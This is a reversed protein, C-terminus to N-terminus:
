ESVVVRVDHVTETGLIENARRTLDAHLFRLQAAWPASSARVLLVAGQIAAPRCQRSLTEGVVEDWRRWLEGVAIGAEWPARRFLGELVTALPEGRESREGGRRNPGARRGPSWAM